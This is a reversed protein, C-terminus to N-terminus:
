GPAAGLMFIGWGKQVARQAIRPVGDSGTVGDPLPYKMYKASWLLGVGDAVCLDCRNLINYFNIDTQAAMIFEPNVTCIQRPIAGNIWVELRDLLDSFTLEDVPIGLIQLAFSRPERTNPADTPHDMRASVAPIESPAILKMCTRAECGHRLGVTHGVYSCPSCVVGSRIVNAREPSPNSASWWPGWALHNSPGFLADVSNRVSAAAMHM